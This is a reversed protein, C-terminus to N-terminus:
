PVRSPSSYGTSEEGFRSTFIQVLVVMNEHESVDHSSEILKNWNFHEVLSNVYDIESVIVKCVVFIGEVKSPITGGPHLRRKKDGVIIFIDHVNSLCTDTYGYLNNQQHTLDQLRCKRILM